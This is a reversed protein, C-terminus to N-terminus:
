LNIILKKAYMERYPMRCFRGQPPKSDEINFDIFFIQVIEGFAHGTDFLFM